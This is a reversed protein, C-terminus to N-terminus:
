SSRAIAVRADPIARWGGGTPVPAGLTGGVWSANWAELVCRGPIGTWCTVNGASIGM